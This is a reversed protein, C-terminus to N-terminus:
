VGAASGRTRVMWWASRSRLRLRRMLRTEAKAFFRWAPMPLLRIFRAIMHHEASATHGFGTAPFMSTIGAAVLCLMLQRDTSRHQM